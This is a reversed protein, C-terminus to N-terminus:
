QEKGESVCEKSESAAPTAAATTTTAAAPPAATATTAATPVATAPTPTNQVEPKPDEIMEAYELTYMRALSRWGREDGCRIMNGADCNLPSSSEPSELLAVVARCVAELTWIPTWADKLVDLCIEGTKWHVNPHCCKTLFKVRPPSHPYANPINFQLCFRAKEFPTDPPGVVTADWLFIDSDNRPGLEIDDYSCKGEKAEKRVRKARNKTVERLERLLRSSSSAM